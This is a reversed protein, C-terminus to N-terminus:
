KNLAEVLIKINHRFMNLYSNAPGDPDSLADSYLTGGIFGGSDKNIQKLIRSDSINEIFLAKVKNERMQKILAAVAAASPEDETSIGAPALFQIGYESAFYGFADHSTIIKRKEAPIALILKKAEKDLKKLEVIYAAANAKYIEANKADAESLANAINNVYIEGNKLTQWAHPDLSDHDHDHHSHHAKNVRERHITLTKVGQSLTVVKGKYEAARVLKDLWGEFGLGNVFVIDASALSKADNPSPEFVHADQNAGVLVKVEVEEGGVNQIIDGIISFSAVVQLKKDHAVAPMILLMTCLVQLLLLIKRM